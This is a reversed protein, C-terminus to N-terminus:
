KRTYLKHQATIIRHLVVILTHLNNLHNIDLQVMMRNDNYHVVASYHYNTIHSILKIDDINMDTFYELFIEKLVTDTHEKSVVTVVPLREYKKGKPRGM